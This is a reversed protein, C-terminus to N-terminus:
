SLVHEMSRNTCQTGSSLRWSLDSRKGFENMVQYLLEKTRINYVYLTSTDDVIAVKTRNINMDVCHIVGTQKAIFQPFPNNVFVQYVSGNKLGILVVEHGEPGGVLKLYRIPSDM